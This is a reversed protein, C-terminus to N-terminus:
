QLFDIISQCLRDAVQQRFKESRLKKEESKTSIFAIEVLVAPMSAGILVYFGAQDVGRNQLELAASVDDVVLAALQESERSFNAQAMTLLIFNEETLDQYQEQSEEFKIVSNELMAVDMARETKAPALFYTEMGYATGRKVANCHLSVFLKGGANNAIKTRKSLPVFVDRDRTMVTKIAQKELAARLKLGVDLVVDKEYLGTPGVAGPDKGGHGPDIVVVDLAWANKDEELKQQAAPDLGGASTGSFDLCYLPPDAIREVGLFSVGSDPVVTIRAGNKLQEAHLAKILDVVWERNFSATDVKAGPFFLIVQGDSGKDSRCELLRAAPIILRTLGAKMSYRVGFLDHRPPTVLLMPLSPDYLLEGPYFEALLEILAGIQVQLKNDIRIVPLPMQRLEDGALVFPSSESFILSRIPLDLRLRLGGSGKVWKLGLRDAFDQLALYDQGEVVAVSLSDARDPDNMWEVAIWDTKATSSLLLCFLIILTVPSKMANKSM